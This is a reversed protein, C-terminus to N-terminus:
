SSSQPLIAFDRLDAFPGALGVLILGKLSLFFLTTFATM